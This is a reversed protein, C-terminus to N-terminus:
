SCDKIFAQKVSSRGEDFADTIKCASNNCKLAYSVISSSGIKVKVRGNPENSVALSAGYDPDQSQWIIDHDIPGCMDGQPVLDIARKLNTDAFSYLTGNGKQSKKDVQYMKKITTVKLAPSALASYSLSLFAIVLLIKIM